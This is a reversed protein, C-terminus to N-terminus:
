GFQFLAHPNALITSKQGADNVTIIGITAHDFLAEFAINNLQKHIEM